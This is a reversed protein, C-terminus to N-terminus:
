HMGKANRVATLDTVVNVRQGHKPCRMVLPTGPGAHGIQWGPVTPGFGITGGALLGLTVPMRETCGEEVCQAHAPMDIVIM